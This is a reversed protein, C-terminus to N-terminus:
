NVVVDFYQTSITMNDKTLQLNLRWEGTMTFNAKGTYHGNGTYIPDVNNPSGHDMSPMEPALSISLDDAPVFKGEVYTYAIVDLENVGVKIADPLLYSLYYRQGSPAQFSAVKSPTTSKVEIPFHATGSKQNALGELAIDLTWEGMEGSPMTFLVEAPYVSAIAKSAPQLVPCSHTMMGMDMTPTITIQSENIEKGSVSDYLAVSIKNLGAYLDDTSLLDVRTAAGPAYASAIKKLGTKGDPLAENDSCSTHLLAILLFLPSSYFISKM